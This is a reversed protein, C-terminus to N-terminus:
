VTTNILMINYKVPINNTIKDGTLILNLIITINDNFKIKLEKKNIEFNFNNYNNDMLCVKDKNNFLLNNYLIDPKILLINKILLDYVITNLDTIINDLESLPLHNFNYYQRDKCNKYKERFVFTYNLVSDLYSKYINKNGQKSFGCLQIFKKPKVSKLPIKLGCEINQKLFKNCYNHIIKTKLNIDFKHWEKCNYNVIELLKNKIFDNTELSLM